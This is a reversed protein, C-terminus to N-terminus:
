RVSMAEPRAHVLKNAIVKCYTREDVLLSGGINYYTKKWPNATLEKYCSKAIEVQQQQM